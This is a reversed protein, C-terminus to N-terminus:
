VPRTAYFAGRVQDAADLCRQALASEGLTAHREALGILLDGVDIEESGTAV